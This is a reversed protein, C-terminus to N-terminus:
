ASKMHEEPYINKAIIKMNNMESLIRRLLSHNDIKFIREKIENTWGCASPLYVLSSGYRLLKIKDLQILNYTKAKNNIIEVHKYGTSM